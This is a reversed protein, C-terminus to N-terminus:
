REETFAIKPLLPLKHNQTHIRLLGMASILVESEHISVFFFLTM